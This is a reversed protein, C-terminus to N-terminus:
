FAVSFEVRNINTKYDIYLSIGGSVVIPRKM